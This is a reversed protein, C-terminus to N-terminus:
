YNLEVLQTFIIYESHRLDISRHNKGLFNYFFLNVTSDYKIDIVDDELEYRFIITKDDIVILARKKIFEAFKM